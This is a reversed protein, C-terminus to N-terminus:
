ITNGFLVYLLSFPLKISSFAFREQCLQEFHDPWLGTADDLLENSIVLLADKMQQM